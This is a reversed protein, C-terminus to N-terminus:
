ESLTEIKSELNQVNISTKKLEDELLANKTTLKNKFEILDNLKSNSNTTTAQEKFDNKIKLESVESELEIIQAQTSSLKSQLESNRQKEDDYQNQLLLFKEESLEDQKAKM